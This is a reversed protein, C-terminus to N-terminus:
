HLFWPLQCMAHCLCSLLLRFDLDELLHLAHLLPHRADLHRAFASLIAVTPGRDWVPPSLATLSIGALSSGQGVAVGADPLVLGKRLAALWVLLPMILAGHQEALLAGLATTGGHSLRWWLM